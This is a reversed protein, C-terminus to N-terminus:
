SLVLSFAEGLVSSKVNLLRGLTLTEFPTTM